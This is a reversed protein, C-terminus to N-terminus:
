REYVQKPHFLVYVELLLADGPFCNVVQELVGEPVTSGAITWCILVQSILRIKDILFKNKPVIWANGVFAKLFCNVLQELM